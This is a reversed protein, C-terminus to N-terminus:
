KNTEKQVNNRIDSYQAVIDRSLNVGKILNEVDPDEVLLPRKNAILNMAEAINSLDELSSNYFEEYARNLKLSKYLAFVSFSSLLLLIFCVIYIM